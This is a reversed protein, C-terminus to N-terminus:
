WPSRSLLITRVLTVWTNLALTVQKCFTVMFTLDVSSDGHGQHM